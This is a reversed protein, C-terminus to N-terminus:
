RFVDMDCSDRASLFRNFHRTREEKKWSEFFRSTATILYNCLYSFL